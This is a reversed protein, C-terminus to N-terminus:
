SVSYYTKVPEFPFKYIELDSFIDLFYEPVHMFLYEDSSYFTYNRNADKYKWQGDKVEQVDVVPCLSTTSYIDVGLNEKSNYFNYFIFKNFKIAIREILM